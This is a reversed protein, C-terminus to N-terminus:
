GRWPVVARTEPSPAGGPRGHRALVLGVTLLLTALSFVGYQRWQLLTTLAERGLLDYAFMGLMASAGPLLFAWRLRSGGAVKLLVYLVPILGLFNTRWALPSFLAALFFAAALALTHGEEPERMSVRWVAAAVVAVILGGLLVVAGLFVAGAEPSVGYQCVMGFLGQNDHSCLMAPTSGSLMGRWEEVLALSGSLGYRMAPMLLGVALGVPLWALRRWQRALLAPLLFLLFPPKFLCVLAWALGSLWPRRRAEHESAAMLALLAVDCQGVMLLYRLFPACLLVVALHGAWSPEGGFRRGCWRLFLLLLGCSALLWVAAAAPRELLSLPAFLLAVVPAYKFPMYGDALQYLPEGALFRAGARHFVAFDEQQKYVWAHVANLLLLGGLLVWPHRALWARAAEAWTARKDMRTRAM